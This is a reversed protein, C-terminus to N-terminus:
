LVLDMIWDGAFKLEEMSKATGVVDLMVSGSCPSVLADSLSLICFSALPFFQFVDETWGCLKNGHTQGPACCQDQNQILSLSSVVPYLTCNVCTLFSM